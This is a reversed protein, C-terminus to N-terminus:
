RSKRIINLKGPTYFLSERAMQNAIVVADELHGTKKFEYAFFASFIDGAGTADVIKELPVPKVPVHVQKHSTMILAGKDAMTVIVKIKNKWVWDTAVKKMFPHDQDSVIVVDVLGLVQKAEKFERLLVQHKSGLCRFYGQPLLVKLTKKKVGAVVKRLYEPSFNPLLPTVFLVETERLFAKLQNDIAAPSARKEFFVRQLRKGRKTINQYVLNKSGQPKPPYLNLEKVYPLLDEGYTAAVKIECDPLQRLAKSIFLPPGGASIYSFGECINQDITVHGLVLIKM